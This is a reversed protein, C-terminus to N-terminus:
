LKLLKKLKLYFSLISQAGIHITEVEIFQHIQLIEYINLHILLITNEISLIYSKLISYMKLYEFKNFTFIRLSIFNM